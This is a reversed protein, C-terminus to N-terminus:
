LWPANRVVGIVAGCLAVAAGLNAAWGLKFSNKGLMWFLAAVLLFMLAMASEAAPALLGALVGIAGSLGCMVAYLGRQFENFQQIGMLMAFLTEVRGPPKVNMRRYLEAVFEGLDQDFRTHRIEFANMRALPKLKDPLEPERPMGVGGILLPVVPLGRALAMGLELAVYYWADGLRRGPGPDRWKDGIVAVVLSCKALTDEIARVFDEGAGIDAVDMFVRGPFIRDLRDRIRGAHGATDSRRYSIFVAKKM